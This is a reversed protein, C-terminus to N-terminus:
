PRRGRGGNRWVRAGGTRELGWKRKCKRPERGAWEVEKLDSRKERLRKRDGKGRKGGRYAM